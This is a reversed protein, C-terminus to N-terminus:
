TGTPHHISPPLSSRMHSGYKLMSHNMGFTSELGRGVLGSDLIRGGLSSDLIRGGLSSDLSRSKNRSAHPCGSASCVFLTSTVIKMMDMKKTM